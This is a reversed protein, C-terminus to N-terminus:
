YVLGFSYRLNKKNEYWGTLELIRSRLLFSMYPNRVPGVLIKCPYIRSKYIDTKIFCNWHFQFNKFFTFKYFLFTNRTPFKAITLFIYKLCFQSFYQLKNSQAWLYRTKQKRNIEFLLNIIGGLGRSLFSNIGYSPM